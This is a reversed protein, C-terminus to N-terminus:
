FPSFKPKSKMKGDLKGYWLLFKYFVFCFLFWLRVMFIHRHTHIYIYIYNEKSSASFATWVRSFNRIVILSSKASPETFLSVWTTFSVNWQNSRWQLSLFLLLWQLHSLSLAILRNRIRLCRLWVFIFVFVFGLDLSNGTAEADAAPAAIRSTISNKPNKM